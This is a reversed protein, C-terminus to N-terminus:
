LIHKRKARTKKPPLAAEWAMRTMQKLAHNVFTVRDVALLKRVRPATKSSYRGWGYGDYLCKSHVQTSGSKGSIKGGATALAKHFLKRHEGTEARLVAAGHLHLRDNDDLDFGFAYPPTYGLIRGCQRDIEQYLSRRPDNGNAAVIMLDQIKRPSLNLSWAVGLKDHAVQCAGKFVGVESAERWQVRAPNVNSETTPPSASAKPPAPFPTPPQSLPQPRPLLPLQVFFPRLQGFGKRKRPEAM